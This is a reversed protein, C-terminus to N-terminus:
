GSANPIKGSWPDCQSTDRANAPLYRIVPGSPFGMVAIIIGWNHNSGNAPALSFPGEHQWQSQYVGPHRLTEQCCSNLVAQAQNPKRPDAGPAPFCLSPRLEPHWTQPSAM